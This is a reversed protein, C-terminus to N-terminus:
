KSQQDSNLIRGDFDFNPTSKNSIDDFTSVLESRFESRFAYKMIETSVGLNLYTSSLIFLM